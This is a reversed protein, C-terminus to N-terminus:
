IALPLAQCSIVVPKDCKTVLRNDRVLGSDLEQNTLQETQVTIIHETQETIM